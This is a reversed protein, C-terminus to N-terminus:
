NVIQTKCISRNPIQICTQDKLQHFYMASLQLQTQLCSFLEIHKGTLINLNVVMVKYYFKTRYYNVFKLILIKLPQMMPSIYYWPVHSYKSKKWVMKKILNYPHHDSWIRLHNEKLVNKTITNGDTQAKVKFCRIYCWYTILDIKFLFAMSNNSASILADEFSCFWSSAHSVGAGGSSTLLDSDWITLTQRAVIFREHRM